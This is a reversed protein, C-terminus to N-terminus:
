SRGSVRREKRHRTAWTKSTDVGWYEAWVEYSGLPDDSRRYGCLWVELPLHKPLWHRLADHFLYASRKQYADDGRDFTYIVTRTGLEAEGAEVPEWAPAILDEWATEVFM